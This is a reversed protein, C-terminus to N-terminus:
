ACYFVRRLKIIGPLSILAGAWDAAWDHYSAQRGPNLIQHIEDTAGIAAVILIIWFLRSGPFALGAMIGITAYALIHVLKDWPAPFLEGAGPQAGGVFLCAVSVLLGTLAAYRVLAPKILM